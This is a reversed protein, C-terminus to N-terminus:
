LIYVIEKRQQPYSWNLIWPVKMHRQKKKRRWAQTKVTTVASEGTTVQLHVQLNQM